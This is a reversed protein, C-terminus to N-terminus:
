QRSIEKCWVPKGGPRTCRPCVVGCEDGYMQGPLFMVAEGRAGCRPCEFRRRTMDEPKLHIRYCSPCAGAAVSMRYAKCGGSWKDKKLFGALDAGCHRCRGPAKNRM